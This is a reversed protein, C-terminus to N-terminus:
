TGSWVRIVIHGQEREPVELILRDPATGSPAEIVEIGDPCGTARPCHPGEPTRTHEVILPGFRTEIRHVDGDDPSGPVRMTHQNNLILHGVIEPRAPDDVENWLVETSGAWAPAALLALIAALRM